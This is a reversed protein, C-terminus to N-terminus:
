GRIVDIPTVQKPMTPFVESLRARSAPEALANGSAVLAVCPLVGAIGLIRLNM